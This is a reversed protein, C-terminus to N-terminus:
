VRGAAPLRRAGVGPRHRRLTWGVGGGGGNEGEVGALDKEAM